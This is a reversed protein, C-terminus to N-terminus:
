AATEVMKMILDRYGRFWPTERKFGNPTVQYVQVWGGGEHDTPTIELPPVLGGLTFNRISQFGQQIDAGTPQGGNKAKVALRIAECHMAATLLGRNYYVTQEMVAPPAKGEAKFMAEIQKRVPYDTGVGAFQMTHYGANPGWGGAAHIDAEASAWVFGVLKDLPYGVGRLTKLCVAPSQGFTHMIVFDPRFREAIDLAAAGVEIAPPPLAFKRLEFGESKQLADLVPFPEHGAPNDYFLYGIKKGHLSGGLREKIFQLSAGAQAWYTAAIPFVYPFKAGNAASAPGFGPCTGPIHDADLRPALAETQPTGYLMISVSGQEKEREYEEIAPPVKYQNDSENIVIEYGEIGGNKNVLNGYHTIAPGIINGVLQTPGTLDEQEGIIIQKAAAKVRPMGFFSAGAGAAAAQLVTRRTTKM